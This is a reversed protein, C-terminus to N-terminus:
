NHRVTDRACVVQIGLVSLKCQLFYGNAIDSMCELCMYSADGFHMVLGNPINLKCKSYVRSTSCFVIM